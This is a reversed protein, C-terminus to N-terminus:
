RVTGLSCHPSLGEGPGAILRPGVALDLHRSRAIAVFAIRTGLHDGSERM